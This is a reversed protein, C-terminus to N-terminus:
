TAKLERGTEQLKLFITMLICDIRMTLYHIVINRSYKGQKEPTRSWNEVDVVIDVFM